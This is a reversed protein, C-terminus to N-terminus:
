CTTYHPLAEWQGTSVNLSEVCDGVTGYLHGSHPVWSWSWARIPNSSVVVTWSRAAPCFKLVSGASEDDAMKIAFPCGDGGCFIIEDLLAGMDVVMPEWSKRLPNYMECTFDNTPRNYGMAIIREQLPRAARCLGELSYYQAERFVALRREADNPLLAVGTRLFQLVLPFWTPDRDLFAYEGGEVDHSFDDSAMASLMGEHRHLVELRTHFLAGGVEMLYLGSQADNLAAAEALGERFAQRCLSLSQALAEVRQVAQATAAGFQELTSLSMQTGPGVLLVCVQFATPLLYSYMGQIAKEPERTACEELVEARQQESRGKQLNNNTSFLVIGQCAAGFLGGERVSALLVAM